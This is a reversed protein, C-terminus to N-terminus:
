RWVDGAFALPHTVFTSPSFHSHTHKIRRSSDDKALYNGVAGDWLDLM